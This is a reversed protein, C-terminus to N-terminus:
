PWFHSRIGKQRLQQFFKMIPLRDLVLKSGVSDNAYKWGCKTMIECRFHIEIFFEDVLETLEADNLLQYALSLETDVHDVDLKFSVFDGARAMNKIVSLPSPSVTSHNLSHGIPINYFSWFPHWKVPVKNWYDLPELLNKEWALM